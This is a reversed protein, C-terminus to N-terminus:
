EVAGVSRAARGAAWQAPTQVVDRARRSIGVAELQRRELNALTAFTTPDVTPDGTLWAAALSECMAGAIAARRVIAQEAASLNSGLDSEIAAISQSVMQASRTRQDLDALSLLKVKAEKGGAVAERRSPKESADRECNAADSLM